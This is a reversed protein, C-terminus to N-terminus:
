KKKVVEFVVKGKTTQPELKERVYFSVKGSSSASNSYATEEELSPKIFNLCTIILSLTIGVIILIAITKKSIM